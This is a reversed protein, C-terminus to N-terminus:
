KFSTIAGAGVSFDRNRGKSAVGDYNISSFLGKLERIGKQKSNVIGKSSGASVVDFCDQELLHFLALCQDEHKVIPFGVINCFKKMLSCVWKSNKEAM